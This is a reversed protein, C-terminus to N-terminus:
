KGSHQNYRGAFRENDHLLEVRHVVTFLLSLPSPDGHSSRFRAVTLPVCASNYIETLRFLINEITTLPDILRCLCHFM